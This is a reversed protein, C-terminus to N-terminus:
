PLTSVNKAAGEEKQRRSLAQASNLFTRIEEIQTASPPAFDLAQQYAITAEAFQNLAFHASAVMSFVRYDTIPNGDTEAASMMQEVADITQEYQKQRFYARAIQYYILVEMPHYPNYTLAAQYAEIANDYRELRFWLEGLTEHIRSWTVDIGQPRRSENLFQMLYEIAERERGTISALLNGITQHAEALTSRYEPNLLKVTKLAEHAAELAKEMEQQESFARSRLLHLRALWGSSERHPYVLAARSFLTLAEDPDRREMLAIFGLREYCLATLAPLTTRKFLAERFKEEATIVLDRSLLIRGWQYYIWGMNEYNPDAELAAHYAALARDTDTRDAFGVQALEYRGFYIDGLLAQYNAQQQLAPAPELAAQMDVLAEEPRASILRAHARRILLEIREAPHANERNFLWAIQSEVRKVEGKGLWRDVQELQQQFRRSFATTTYNM